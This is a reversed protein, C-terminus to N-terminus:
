VNKVKWTGSDSVQSRFSIGWEGNKFMGNKMSYGNANRVWRVIEWGDWFYGRKANKSVFDHAETYNLEIM